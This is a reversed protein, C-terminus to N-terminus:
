AAPKNTPWNHTEDTADRCWRYLADYLGHGAELQALDDAYMRSLGLSVALLGAAEPALDLRRHRRRARDPRPAAAARHRARVRRGDRRLHLARRPPELVRGRHRVADRRVARGRGRGRGAGRVPVRRRPRRLPPDALPLRDPRDEAARPDGLRHAGARRAAAAQGRAGAAPRGQGLGRVRGGASPRGGEHRLWAAAGESLKAGAPLRGRRVPGALAAAWDAAATAPPAGLGPDPAPRRRLRGRHPRRRDGPVAPTGVLRALKDASITTFSPM